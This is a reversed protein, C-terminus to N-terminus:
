KIEKSAFVLARNLYCMKRSPHQRGTKLRWNWVQTLNKEGPVIVQLFIYPWWSFVPNKKVLGHTSLSHFSNTISSIDSILPTSPIWVGSTYVFVTKIAPVTNSSFPMANESLFTDSLSSICPLWLPCHGAVLFSLCERPILLVSPFQLPSM